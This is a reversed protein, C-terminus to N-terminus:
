QLAPQYYNIIVELDKQYKAEFDLWIPTVRKKKPPATAKIREKESKIEDYLLKSEKYDKVKAVPVYM